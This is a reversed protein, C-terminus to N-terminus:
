ASSGAGQGSRSGPGSVGQALRGAGNRPQLCDEVVRYNDICRKYARRAQVLRNLRVPVVYPSRTISELLRQKEDQLWERGRSDGQLTLKGALGFNGFTYRNSHGAVTMVGYRYGFTHQVIARPTSAMVIGAREARLKYDTDEGIPFETGPGLYEDFAGIADSAGIRLAVNCSIWDFGMPAQRAQAVPDYITESPYLSPCRAVAFRRKAPKTVAGGVVGVTPYAQFVGALVELWNAQAEGDDDTYAIFEGRAAQRGANRARSAGAQPAHVYRVRRDRAAHVGTVQEVDAAAAQGVILLEFDSV